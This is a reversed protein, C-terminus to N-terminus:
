DEPAEQVIAPGELANAQYTQSKSSDSGKDVPAGNEWSWFPTDTEKAVKRAGEAARHMAALAAAGAKQLDSQPADSKM